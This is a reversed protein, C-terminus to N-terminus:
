GSRLGILLSNQTAIQFRLAALTIGSEEERTRRGLGTWVETKDKEAKPGHERDNKEWFKWKRFLLSKQAARTKKKNSRNPSSNKHLHYKCCISGYPM